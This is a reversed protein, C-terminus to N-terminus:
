SYQILGVNFIKKFIYFSAYFHIQIVSFFIKLKKIPLYWGRSTDSRVLNIQINLLIRFLMGHPNYQKCAEKKSNKNQSKLKYATYLSVFNCYTWITFHYTFIALFNELFFVFNSFDWLPMNWKITVHKM